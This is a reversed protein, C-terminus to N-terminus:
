LGSNSQVALERTPALVVAQTEHRSLDLNEILPIGFAFTKGTGTPAKAVLDRGAKMIPIAKKQVETLETFGMDDLARGIAQSFM